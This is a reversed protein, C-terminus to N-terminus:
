RHLHNQNWDWEVDNSEGFAVMVDYTGNYGCYVVVQHNMGSLLHTLEGWTYTSM